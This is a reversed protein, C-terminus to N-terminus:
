RHRRARSGRIGGEFLYWPLVVLACVVAFFAIVGIQAALVLACAGIAIGLLADFLLARRRAAAPSVHRPMRVASVRAARGSAHM